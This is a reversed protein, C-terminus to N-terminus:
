IQFDPLSNTDMYRRFATAERKRSLIYASIQQGYVYKFQNLFTQNLQGIHGTRPDKIVYVHIPQSKFVRGRVTAFPQNAVMTSQVAPPLTVPRLSGIVFQDRYDEPIDELANLVPEISRVGGYSVQTYDFSRWLPAMSHVLRLLKTPNDDWRAYLAKIHHYPATNSSEYKVYQELDILLMELELATRVEAHSLPNNEGTCFSGVYTIPYPFRSSDKGYDYYSLHSHTYGQMFEQATMIGRLGEFSVQWGDNCPIFDVFVYLGRIPHEAGVTNRLVFEDYYITMQLLTPSVELDFSPLWKTAVERIQDITVRETATETAVM